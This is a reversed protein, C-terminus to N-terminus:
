KKIELNDIKCLLTGTSERMSIEYGLLSKEPVDEGEIMGLLTKCTMRGLEEVDFQISTISPIHNELFSSDYFSVVKVQEPVQIHKQQLTNLVCSCLYDDMAIICEMGQKLMKEVLERATKDDEVDLYIHEREPEIGKRMFAELFGGLRNKTVMYSQNGGILGIRRIGKDLLKETLERCASRHDNDIQVVLRDETSGIAVFPIQMKKLYEAPTDNELTRTLIVGDVKHNIVARELQSIDEATVVSILVDYDMSAAVKSIGLMCNQFFPLEVINYDGPMVLGINYTRSQALGKAIVNPRYNHEEIYQLVKERTKAGIRGKGSIARSVTTKSVGLEAAIDGITLNREDM